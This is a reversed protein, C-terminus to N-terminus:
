PTQGAGAAPVTEAALGPAPQAVIQEWTPGWQLQGYATFRVYSPLRRLLRLDRAVREECPRPNRRELLWGLADGSSTLAALLLAQWPLVAHVDAPLNPFAAGLPLSVLGLLWVYGTAATVLLPLLVQLGWYRATPRDEIVVAAGLPNLAVCVLRHGHSRAILIHTLEHCVVIALFGAVLWAVLPPSM